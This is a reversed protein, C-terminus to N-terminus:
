TAAIAKLINTFSYVGCGKGLPCMSAHVSAWTAVLCMFVHVSAGVAEPCKFEDADVPVVLTAVAAHVDIRAAVAFLALGQAYFFLM